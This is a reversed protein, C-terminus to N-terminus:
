KKEFNSSKFRGFEISIFPLFIEHTKIDGLDPYNIWNRRYGFGIILSPNIRFIKSM